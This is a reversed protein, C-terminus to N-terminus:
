LQRPQPAEMQKEAIHSLSTNNADCTERGGHPQVGAAVDRGFGRECSGPESTTPSADRDTTQCSMAAGGDGAVLGDIKEMTQGLDVVEVFGIETGQDSCHRHM